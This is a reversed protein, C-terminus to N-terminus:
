KVGTSGFGGRDTKDVDGLEFQVEPVERVCMQAIRDGPLITFPEDGANFLIVKVEERYNYDVTGPSNLVFVGHKAALGSRSRIQIEWNEESLQMRLGTPILARSNPMITSPVSIAARLDRGADFRYMQQPIFSIDIENTIAQAEPTLELKIRINQHEM